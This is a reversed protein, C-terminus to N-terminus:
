RPQEKRIKHLHRYGLEAIIRNMWKDRRPTGPVNRDESPGLDKPWSWRNLECWWRVLTEPKRRSITTMLRRDSKEADECKFCECGPKHLESAM